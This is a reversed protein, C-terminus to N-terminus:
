TAEKRNGRHAAIREIGYPKQMQQDLGASDYAKDGIVRAPLEDLFSNGIAEEILQSEHPSAAPVSVVIPVSDGVTIATIKTGQGRQSPGM